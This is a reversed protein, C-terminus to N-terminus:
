ILGTIEKLHVIEQKKLKRFKGLSLSGVHSIQGFAIRTLSIVKKNVLEFLEKVHHYSGVKLEISYSKTAVQVVKQISQRNKILVKNSNLFLLEKLSLPENLRARYIRVIEYKPHTLRESLEGDNTLLLTGTTNYDLRGIPFIRRSEKILDTVLTRNEPDKLTCITKPPKNILYYVKEEKSNIPVNNVKVEDQFSAKDGLSAKQNNITVKGQKIFIEARRRSCLGSQAIIKQVREKM